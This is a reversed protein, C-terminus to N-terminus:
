CGNVATEAKSPRMLMAYSVYWALTKLVANLPLEVPGALGFCIDMAALQGPSITTRMRSTNAMGPQHSPTDGQKKQQKESVFQSSPPARVM